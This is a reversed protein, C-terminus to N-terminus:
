AVLQEEWGREYGTLFIVVDLRSDQYRGVALTLLGAEWGRLDRLRTSGGQFGVRVPGSRGVGLCCWHEVAATWLVCSLVRGSRYQFGSAPPLRAVADRKNM